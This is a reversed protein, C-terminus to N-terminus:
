VSNSPPHFRKHFRKRNGEIYFNRESGIESYGVNLPPIYLIHYLIILFLLRLIYNYCKKM